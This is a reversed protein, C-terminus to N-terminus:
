LIETFITGHFNAPTYTDHEIQRLNESIALTLGLVREKAASSNM